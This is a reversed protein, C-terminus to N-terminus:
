REPLTSVTAVMFTTNSLFILQNNKGWRPKAGGARSVRFRGTASPYAQVYIESPGSERSEYALLLGDSSLSANTGLTGDESDLLM